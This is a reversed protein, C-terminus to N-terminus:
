AAEKPRRERGAAVRTVGVNRVRSLVIGVLMAAVFLVAVPEGSALSTLAPGPCLGALGWGIGFLLAGTVLSGDISRRTPLDFAPALVPRGRRLALRSAPAYVAIAGFMVLALRPDWDGAVDLFALVRPPQTMGGIGLGLAFTLGCAFAVVGKVM